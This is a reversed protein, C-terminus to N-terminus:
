AFTTSIPIVRNSSKNKPHGIKTTLVNKEKVLAVAQKIYIAKKELDVNDWVLGLLEGRRMGTELLLLIDLGYRHSYAYDEILQIQQPTYIKDEVTAVNSTKQPTKLRYCPKKECYGNFVAEEYMQKLCSKFKKVTDISYAEISKNLFVQFEIPKIANLRKEGFAPILHNYVSNRYTAEYTNEKVTGHISELWQIAWDSFLISKAM